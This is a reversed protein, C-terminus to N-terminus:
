LGAGAPEEFAGIPSPPCSSSCEHISSARSSGQPWSGAHALMSQSDARSALSGAGAPEAFTGMPDNASLLRFGWREASLWRLGACTPYQGLVHNARLWSLRTQHTVGTELRKLTAAPAM